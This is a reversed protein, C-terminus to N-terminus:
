RTGRNATAEAKQGGAFLEPCEAQLRYTMAALLDAPVAPTGRLDPRLADLELLMRLLQDQTEITRVPQGQWTRQFDVQKARLQGGKLRRGRKGIAGPTKWEVPVDQGRFGVWADPCGHGVKSTIAVSAGLRRAFAVLDAQAHDPNGGRKKWFGV